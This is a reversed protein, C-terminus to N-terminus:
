RKHQFFFRFSWLQWSSSDGRPVYVELVFKLGVWNRLYNVKIDLMSHYILAVATLNFRRNIYKFVTTCPRIALQTHTSGAPVNEIATRRCASIYCARTWKSSLLLCGDRERPGSTDWPSRGDKIEWRNSIQVHMAVCLNVDLCSILLKWKLCSAPALRQLGGGGVVVKSNTWDLFLLLPISDKYKGKTGCHPSHLIMILFRKIVLQRLM